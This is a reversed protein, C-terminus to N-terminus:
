RELPHRIVGKGAYTGRNPHFPHVWSTAEFFDGLRCIGYGCIVSIPRRAPIRGSDWCFVYDIRVARDGWNDWVVSFAPFIWLTGFLPRSPMTDFRSLM